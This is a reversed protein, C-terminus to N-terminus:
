IFRAFYEWHGAGKAARAKFAVTVSGPELDSVLRSSMKAAIASEGVVKEPARTDRSVLSIIDARLLKPQSIEALSLESNV